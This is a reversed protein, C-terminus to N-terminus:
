NIQTHAHTYPLFIPRSNPTCMTRGTSWVQKTKNKNPWCQSLTVAVQCELELLSLCWGGARCTGESIHLSGCIYMHNLFLFLKIFFDIKFYLFRLYTKPYLKQDNKFVRSGQTLNM